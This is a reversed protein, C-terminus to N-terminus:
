ATAFVARPNQGCSQLLLRIFPMMRAPPEPVRSWGTVRAILL